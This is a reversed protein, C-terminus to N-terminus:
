HATIGKLEDNSLGPNAGRKIKEIALMAAANAQEQKTIAINGDGPVKSFAPQHYILKSSSFIDYGYTKNPAMFVHISYDGSHGKYIQNAVQNAPANARRQAMSKDAATICLCLMVSCVFRTQTKM